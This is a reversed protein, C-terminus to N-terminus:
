APHIVPWTIGTAPPNFQNASLLLHRALAAAQCRIEPIATTEFLESEHKYGALKGWRHGIIKGDLSTCMHCIVYPRM